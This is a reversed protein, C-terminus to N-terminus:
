IIHADCKNTFQTIRLSHYLYHDKISNNSSDFTIGGLSLISKNNKQIIGLGCSHFFSYSPYNDHIEEWFQYVGFDHRNITIDHLLVYGNEKVKPFWNYFDHSINEKKHCGDLHLIDISKDEILNLAEDFDSKIFRSFKFYNENNYNQVKYFVDEDYFGSQEDGQWNDIGICQTNLNFEKVAQCFAFYSDGLHVGLEVILSPREYYVLDCAFPIHGHWNNIHSSYKPCFFSSPSLHIKHMTTLKRIIPM